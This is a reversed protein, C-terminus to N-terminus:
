SSKCSMSKRAPATILGNSRRSKAPPARATSAPARGAVFRAAEAQVAQQHTSEAGAREAALHQAAEVEAERRRQQERGLKVRFEYDLKEERGAFDRQADRLGELLEVTRKAGPHKSM